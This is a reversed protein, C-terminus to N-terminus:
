ANGPVWTKTRSTIASGQALMRYFALNASRTAVSAMNEYTVKAAADPFKVGYWAITIQVRDTDLYEALEAFSVQVRGDVLPEDFTMVHPVEGRPNTVVVAGKVRDYEQLVFNAEYATTEVTVQGATDLGDSLVVREYDMLVASQDETEPVQVSVGWNRKVFLNRESQIGEAKFAFSGALLKANKSLLAFVARVGVQKATNPNTVVPQYQRVVQVGKRVTFVSAGLKGSGTGVFGALKMSCSILSFVQQLSM